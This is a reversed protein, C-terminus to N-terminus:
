LGLAARVPRDRGYVDDRFNVAGDPGVWATLYVIYVPVPAKLPEARTRGDALRAATDAPTWTGNAALLQNVLAEASELRLCGSSLTRSNLDFLRKAPTDHLYIDWPDNMVLKFRGLSNGPGPDQRLVYPFRAPDVRAWDIRRPDLERGGSLVRVGIRPLFDPDAQQQPLLDEVAILKPVTWPPNFLVERVESTFSPTPRDPHGAIIRMTLVPQGQEVLALEGAPVNAWLYRLGFDRPLWRWRERAVALQAARDAAPVAAARATRADFEGTAPLGHRAQFRRLAQDMGTDFFWADAQMFADFDGTARLQDRLAPVRPDRLGLRLPPGDPIAPWGGAAAISQYRALAAELRAYAEDAPPPADAPTVPIYWGPDPTATAPPPAAAFAPAGLLAALLAAPLAAPFCVALRARPGALLDALGDALGRGAAAM